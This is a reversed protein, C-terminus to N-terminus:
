PTESTQSASGAKKTKLVLAKETEHAKYSNNKSMDLYYGKNYKRKVLSFKNSCSGLLLVALLPLIFKNIM